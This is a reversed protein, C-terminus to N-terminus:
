IYEVGMARAKDRSSEINSNNDEYKFEKAVMTQYSQRPNDGLFSSCKKSMAVGVFEFGVKLHPM